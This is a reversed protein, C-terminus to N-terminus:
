RFALLTLSHAPFRWAVPGRALHVSVTRVSVLNPHAPTNIATASPGDLISAVVRRGPTFGSFVIAARLKQLSANEVLVDVGRRSVASLCWLAPEGSPSLAPDRRVVAHLLRGGALARMVAIALGSPEAFFRPGFAAIMASQRTLGPENLAAGLGHTPAHTTKDIPARALLAPPSPSSFPSSVLLYKEALPVGHLIWQRLQAAVLLGEDLSLLFRPDRSPMPATPQGYETVVIPVARGSARHAFRSLAALAAGQQAPFSMLEQEYLRLPAGPDKPMAYAHFELCDYPYRRGMLALFALDNGESACIQARPDVRKMAAYYEVFGGHPGSEYTLTIEDGAPPIAGHIGNGFRIEGSSANFAYVHAGRRAQNLDRVPRWLSGAVEVRESGPVVPPYYAFFRQDAGGTSRSAWPLDNAFTGVRQRVFRTTGGFIYLCTAVERRPCAVDHPGLSVLQGARWAQEAPVQQENGVEYYTVHYPARHGDRARLTAWYGITSTGAAPQAPVPATLYAVFAAAEAATGTDFNVVVNGVAGTADLLHGFEAPGLSSRLPRDIVTLNPVYRLAQMGFPENAGRRAFPGIAREWQFSDATTGGPYRLATIGLRRVLALFGPYFRGTSQDLAGGGGAPWFLNAGFVLRSVRSTPPGSVVLLATGGRGGWVRGVSAGATAPAVQFTLTGSLAAIVGFARAVGRRRVYRQSMTVM